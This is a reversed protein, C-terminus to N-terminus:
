ASKRKAAKKAVPKAAKKATTKAPAKAAKKPAARGGAKTAKRVPTPTAPAEGDDNADGAGADTEGADLEDPDASTPHRDRAAKREAISAELASMLDVVNTTSPAPEFAQVVEGQGMAKREILALVQERYTDRYKEPEFTAALSDILSEAMELERPVVDSEALAALEPLAMPDNIEDAYVMTSLVLYGDVPRITAVYQKTRMVFHGIAVKHMQTMAEVLLQYPKLVPGSPVVYYASDYFVPDIQDLDVFEEIEITRQGVPDLAMLEDEEVIVYEGSAIEYGKVIQGAPVESEDLASVKKQKVRSGSRADIQNFRVNKRTVANHLSVSINVLGFSIVGNWISRAM